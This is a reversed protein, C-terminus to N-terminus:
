TFKVTRLHPGIYGIFFNEGFPCFYIRMGTGFKSHWSFLRVQGDPCLFEREKGYRAHTLTAESETSANIGMHGYNPATIEGSQCQRHYENMTNLHRKISAVLDPRFDLNNLQIHVDACFVLHTFYAENMEWLEDWSSIGALQQQIFDDVHIPDNLNNVEIDQFRQGDTSFRVLILRAQFEPADKLSVLAGKFFAAGAISSSIVNRQDLYCEHYDIAEDLLRDIYPGKTILRLFLSRAHQDSSTAAWTHVTYEPLLKCTHFDRHTCIPGSGQITQLGVITEILSRMLINAAQYTSAQAIFSLENVMVHM